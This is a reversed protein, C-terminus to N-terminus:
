ERKFFACLIWLLPITLISKKKRKIRRAWLSNRTGGSKRRITICIYKKNEFNFFIHSWSSLMRQGTLLTAEM